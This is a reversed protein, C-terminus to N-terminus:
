IEGYTENYIERLIRGDFEWFPTPMVSYQIGFLERTVATLSNENDSGSLRVRRDSVVTAEANSETFRLISGLPIGMEIFNLNPRRRKYIEAAATEEDAIGMPPTAILEATADEM